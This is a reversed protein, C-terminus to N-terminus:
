AIEFKNMDWTKYINFSYSGYMITAIKLKFVECSCKRVAQIFM